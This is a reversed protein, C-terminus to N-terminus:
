RLVRRLAPDDLAQDIVDQLAASSVDALEDVNSWYTVKPTRRNRQARYTKAFLPKKEGRRFVQFNITCGSEQSALQHAYFETITGGILYRGKGKDVLMGRVKLGYGVSNHVLEAVPKRTTLKKIPVGLENKISGLVVGTGDRADVFRGLDVQRPGPIVSSPAAYTIPVQYTSCSSLVAVLIGILAGLPWIRRRQKM